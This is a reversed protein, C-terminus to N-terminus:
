AVFLFQKGEIFKMEILAKRIQERADRAGRGGVAGIIFDDRYQSLEDTSIVPAGAATRGIKRPNIDIFRAIEVGEAALAKAYTKGTRGAGWIQAKGSSLRQDRSLYYAKLKVFAELSYRPDTRSARTPTDRWELLTLPVKAIKMRASFMRLWLDYDEPGDFDRWGNMAELANRRIIASPHPLPSEIYIEREIDEPEILSNVWREYYSMGSSPLPEPIVRILCGAAAIDLNNSLFTVQKELREPHSIDDADMRAILEGNCKDLGFNLSQVIGGAPRHFIVFRTDREALGDIIEPTDDTSGDDVVICEFEALTQRAISELAETIFDAGNRVPLLVSVIPVVM